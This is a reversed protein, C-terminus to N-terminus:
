RTKWVSRTQKKIPQDFFSKNNILANFDKIEVLPMYYKGFCDRIPNNDDNKFLLVFLRNINRFTPEIMYDLNNNKTQTTVESRNNWSVTGKFGQKLNEFFEVNNDIPLTVVPVYLKTSRTKFSIDTLNNNDEVLVFNNTRM